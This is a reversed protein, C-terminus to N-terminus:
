FTLSYFLFPVSLSPLHPLLYLLCKFFIFLYLLCLISTIHLAYSFLGFFYLTIIILFFTIFFYSIIFLLIVCHILVFYSISFYFLPQRLLVFIIYINYVIKYSLFIGRM